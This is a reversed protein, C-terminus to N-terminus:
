RTIPNNELYGALRRVGEDLRSTSSAYCWRLYGEGEPGFAAGPALGLGAGTVLQKCFALSDEVGDVRFFTYMAGGAPAALDVGPVQGLRAALHDRGQRLREVTRAIAGEGRSLAVLGAAQVFPPACTSSYEILKGIDGLMAPPVVIWGLRWGTMRWAKSFSNCSIVRDEPAAIDLFSPACPADFCIRQYVDDSVIWIGLRRCHALIAEQMERSITWGTPNNPANLLLARTGPVLADFLRQEDLAWGAASFELAVTEVHAGLVKPMEVLNPWLPTVAVVRDGPNLLAQLALMLAHTGSSTVAIREVGIRGHWRSLYAAIEERLAPDGLTQVYFTRKSELAAVAASCIEDPTEEDPEGFWFPLVDKRDMGANAVERIKSSRLAQVEPRAVTPPTRHTAASHM